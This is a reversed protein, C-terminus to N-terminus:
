TLKKTTAEEAIAKAGNECYEGLRSREDDPDPWACGPCDFGKKQNMDMLARYGRMIGMESLVHKVSSYVAPLGAASEKLEGRKIGTFDEPNEAHITQDQDKM